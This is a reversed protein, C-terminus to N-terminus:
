DVRGIPQLENRNYQAIRAAQRQFRSEISETSDERRAEDLLELWADIFKIYRPALRMLDQPRYRHWPKIRGAFHVIRADLFSASQLCQQYEELFVMYNFIAPVPKFRGEFYVNLAMQDTFISEGFRLRHECSILELLGAYTEDTLLEPGVSIVGANFSSQFRQGYRETCEMAELDTGALHARIRDEYDFGDPCALLPESTVFLEAVDGACYMDSDLYLVRRYDSLRFIELSFLRRYVDQLSPFRRGLMETKERLRSDPRVYRIRHHRDLRSRGPTSLGETVVIVDGRFWPNYKLFSYILVEAGISFEDDSITVICYPEDVSESM